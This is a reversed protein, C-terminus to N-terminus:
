AMSPPPQKPHTIVVPGLGVRGDHCLVECRPDRLSCIMIHYLDDARPPRPSHPRTVGGAWRTASVQVSLDRTRQTAVEDDTDEPTCRLGALRASAQDRHMGPSRPPPLCQLCRTCQAGLGTDLMRQSLVCGHGSIAAIWTGDIISYKDTPKPPKITCRAPAPLLPGDQAGPFHERQPDATAKDTGKTKDQAQVGTRVHPVIFPPSALVNGARPGERVARSRPARV